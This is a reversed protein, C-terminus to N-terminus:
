ERKLPGFCDMATESKCIAMETGRRGFLLYVTDMNGASDADSGACDRGGHDATVTVTLMARAQNHPARTYTYRGETHEAGSVVSSTGDAAYSYREKCSNTAQTWTWTGVISPLPLLATEDAPASNCAQIVGSHAHLVAMSRGAQHARDYAAAQRWEEASAERKLLDVTCHCVGTRRGARAESDQCGVELGYQFDAVEAESVTDPNVAPSACSVGSLALLALLVRKMDLIGPVNFMPFNLM